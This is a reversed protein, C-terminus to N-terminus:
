CCVQIDAQAEGHTLVVYTSCAQLTSDRVVAKTKDWAWIAGAPLGLIMM